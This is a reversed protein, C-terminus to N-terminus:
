AIHINATPYKLNGTKRPLTILYALTLPGLRGAYMMLMLVWEGVWSLETTIGRSLGVTSLASVVEFVVDLFDHHEEIILLSFIAFLMLIITISVMSLAKKVAVESITRSFLVVNEARRIYSWTTLLVLVFTGLKIGSATSLSGGGIFMLFLTLLTSADTMATIEITNFGATRPTIAAFWARSLQGSLNHPALTAPNNHELLWFLVFAALNILLTATIMMKTNITFKNWHRSNKIDSWVLFGLGGSVILATIVLNVLVDDAYTILSDASLSFGANNFASITYFFARYAAETLTYDQLWILTLLIFGISEFFLALLIVSQATSVIKHFGIEGFAEQAILQESISLRRQLTLFALVAFTMFGLGGAQIHFAIILQGFTTFESTNVVSLGTVTVASTATFAAKMWSIPQHTSFPLKLLITCLFILVLFGLSLVLPPHFARPHM